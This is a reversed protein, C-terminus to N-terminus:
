AVIAPKAGLIALRHRPERHYRAFFDTAAALLATASAFLEGPTGARRCRRGLLESPNLWPSSTPRYLLVPRGVAARAVAEVQDDHHTAVNDWAVDVTGTPHKAVLAELLRAIGRGRTRPECPVVTEGPRYNVAGLGYRKEPQRATPVM